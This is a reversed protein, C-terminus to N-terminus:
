PLGLSHDFRGIVLDEILSGLTVSSARGSAAAFITGMAGERVAYVEADLAFDLFPVFRPNFDTSLLIREISWIRLFSAEDFDEDMFGNFHQYICEYLISFTEVDIAAKLSALTLESAPPALLVGRSRLGAINIM